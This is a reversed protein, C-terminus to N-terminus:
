DEEDLTIVIGIEHQERRGVKATEQKAGELVDRAADLDWHIDGDTSPEGGAQNHTVVIYGIRSM